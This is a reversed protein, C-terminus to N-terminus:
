PHAQPVREGNSESAGLPATAAQALHQIIMGLRTFIRLAPTSDKPRQRSRLVRALPIRDPHPIDSVLFFADDWAPADRVSHPRPADQALRLM